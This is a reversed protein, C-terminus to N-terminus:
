HFRNGGDHRRASHDLAETVQPDEVPDGHVDAGALDDHDDSRGARALRREQPTEVVQLADVLPLDEHM